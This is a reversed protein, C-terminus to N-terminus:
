GDALSMMFSDKRGQEFSHPVGGLLEGTMAWLPTPLVGCALGMIIAGSGDGMPSLSQGGFRDTIFEFSGFHIIESLSFGDCSLREGGVAIALMSSPVMLIVLPFAFKLDGKKAHWTDTNKAGALYTTTLITGEQESTTKHVVFCV